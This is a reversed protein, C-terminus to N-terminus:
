KSFPNFNSEALGTNLQYGSIHITSVLRKDISVSIQHPLLIGNDLRYDSFKYIEFPGRAKDVPLAGRDSHLNKVMVIYGTTVDVYYDVELSPVNRHISGFPLSRIRQLRLHYLNHGMEQDAVPELLKVSYSSDQLAATLQGLPFFHSTSSVDDVMGLRAVGGNAERSSWSGHNYFISRKGTTLTSDIRLQDLERMSITLPTEPTEASETATTPLSLTGAAVLDHITAISVNGGSAQIVRQIIAIAEPSREIDSSNQAAASIATLLFATLAISSKRLSTFSRGGSLARNWNSSIRIYISHLRNTCFRTRDM